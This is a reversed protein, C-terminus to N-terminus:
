RNERLWGRHSSRYYMFYIPAALIGNYLIQYLVQMFITPDFHFVVFSTLSLILLIVANIISGLIVGMVGVLVNEQFVNGQMKSLLFATVAKAIANIGIVRGMFLDELLGCAFGYAASKNSPHLMAYFVVFVLVLDPVTGKISYSHFLTSQLFIALFPLLILIVFRM